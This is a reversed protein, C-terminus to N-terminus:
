CLFSFQGIAEFYKGHVIVVDIHSIVCNDRVYYTGWFHTNWTSWCYILVMSTALIWPSDCVYSAYVDFTSWHQDDVTRRPKYLTYSWYVHSGDEKRFADRSYSLRSSSLIPLSASNCWAPNQFTIFECLVLDLCVNVWIFKSPLVMCM